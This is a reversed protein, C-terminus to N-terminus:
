SNFFINTFKGTYHTEESANLSDSLQYYQTTEM